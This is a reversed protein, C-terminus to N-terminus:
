ENSKSEKKYIDLDVRNSKIIESSIYTDTLDMRDKCKSRCMPKVICNACPCKSAYSTYKVSCVIGFLVCGKEKCKNVKM